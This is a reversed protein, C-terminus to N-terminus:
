WSGAVREGVRKSERSHSQRARACAAHHSHRQASAGPSRRGTSGTFTPPKRPEDDGTSRVNVEFREAAAVAPETLCGAPVSEKKGPETAVASQRQYMSGCLAMQGGLRNAERTELLGTRDDHRHRINPAYCGASSRSRKRTAGIASTSWRAILPGDLRKLLRGLGPGNSVYLQMLGIAHEGLVYNQHMRTDDYRIGADFGASGRPIM